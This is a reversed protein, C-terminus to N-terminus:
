LSCRFQVTRAVVSSGLRVVLVASTVAYMKAVNRNNFVAPHRASLKSPKETKNLDSM